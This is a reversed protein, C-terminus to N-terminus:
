RGSQHDSVNKLGAVDEYGGDQASFPIVSAGGEFNLVAAVIAAGEANDREDAAFTAAKRGVSDKGFDTAEAIRAELFNNEAADIEAGPPAVERGAGAEEIEQAANKVFSWERAEADAGDLREVFRFLM